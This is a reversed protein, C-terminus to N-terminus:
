RIAIECAAVPLNLLFVLFLVVSSFFCDLYYGFVLLYVNCVGLSYRIAVVVSGAFSIDGGPFPLECYIM